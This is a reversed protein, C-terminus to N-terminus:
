TEVMNLLLIITGFVFVCLIDVVFLSMKSKELHGFGIALKKSPDDCSM